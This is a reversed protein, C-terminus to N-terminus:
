KKDRGSQGSAAASSAPPVPHALGIKLRDNAAKMRHVSRLLAPESSGAAQPEFRAMDERTEESRIVVAYAGQSAMKQGMAKAVTLGEFPGHPVDGNASEEVVWYRAM